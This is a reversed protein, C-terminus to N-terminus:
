INQNINKNITRRMSLIFPSFYKRWFKNAFLNATEFDVHFCTVEKEKAAIFAFSLLKQGIKNGRYEAKIYAGIEDICGCQEVTLTETDKESSISMNIFGVAENKDYALFVMNENIFEKLQDMSYSDRNLFIPSQHYFAESEEVLDFLEKVHNEEARIVTYSIKNQYKFNGDSYADTLHAGFGMQFLFERIRQNKYVVAILHNFIDKDVWIQSLYVLMDRYIIEEKEATSSHGIVPCFISAEGNFDIEMYTFFGVLKGEEWAAIANKNEICYSLYESFEITKNSWYIPLIEDEFCYERYRSCWITMAEEIHEKSLKDIIIHEM